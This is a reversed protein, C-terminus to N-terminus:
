KKGATKGAKRIIHENDYRIGKGKYPEPKRINRIKAAVQGLLCKDTSSLIIQNNVVTASVVKPLFFDVVNSYGVSLSIKNGEINVRYGVGEVVLIKKFGTTSGIIMNNILSRTLGRFANTRRADDVGKVLLTDNIRVLEIEPSIQQELVGNIGTIRVTKDILELSIGEPILIPKNGIRSM